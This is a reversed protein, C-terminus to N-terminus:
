SEPIQLEGIDDDPAIQAIGNKVNFIVKCVFHPLSNTIEQIMKSSVSFQDFASFIRLSPLLHYWRDHHVDPRVLYEAEGSSHFSTQNGTPLM